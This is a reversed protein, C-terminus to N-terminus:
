QRTLKDRFFAILSGLLSRYVVKEKVIPQVQRYKPIYEIQVESLFEDLNRWVESKELTQWDHFPLQFSVEALQDPNMWNVYIEYESKLENEREFTTELCSDNFTQSIVKESGLPSYKMSEGGDARGDDAGTPRNRHVTMKSKEKITKM